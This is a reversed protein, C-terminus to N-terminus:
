VRVRWRRALQLLETELRELAEDRSSLQPSFAVRALEERLLAVENPANGGRRRAKASLSALIAEMREEPSGEIRPGAPAASHSRGLRYGAAVLLLAAVALVPVILAPAPFPNRPPETRRPEAAPAEPLAPGAARVDLPSSAVDAVRGTVPNFTSIRLVPVTMAGPKEPTVVWQWTRTSLLRQASRRIALRTEPESIRAGAIALEPAAVDALRGDGSLSATVSFSGGPAVDKRDVSSKLTFSGVPLRDDNPPLPRIVAAVPASEREVPRSDSFPSDGFLDFFDSRIAILARAAGVSITGPQNAFLAKRIM